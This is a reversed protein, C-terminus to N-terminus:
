DPAEELDKAEPASVVVMGDLIGTVVADGAVNVCTRIRDVMWDVAIYLAITENFPVGVGVMLTVLLGPGASPIPAAGMSGLTALLAMTLFDGLGFSMGQLTGLFHCGCILTICSGDM